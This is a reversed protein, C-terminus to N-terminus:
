IQGRFRGPPGRRVRRQAHRHVRAALEARRAEGAEERVVPHRGALGGLGTTKHLQVNWPIKGPFEPFGLYQSISLLLQGFDTYQIKAFIELVNFMQLFDSINELIVAYEINLM